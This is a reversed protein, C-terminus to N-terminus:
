ALGVGPMKGARILLSAVGTLQCLAHIGGYVLATWQVDRELLPSTQALAVRLISWGGFLLIWVLAVSQVLPRRTGGQVQTVGYSVRVAHILTLPSIPLLIPHFQPTAVSAIATSLQTLAPITYGPSSAAAM